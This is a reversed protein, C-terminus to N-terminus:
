IMVCIAVIFWFIICGISAYFSGMSIRILLVRRDNIDAKSKQVKGVLQVWQKLQQSEKLSQQWNDDIFQEIESVSPFTEYKRRRQALSATVLSILLCLVISSFALM